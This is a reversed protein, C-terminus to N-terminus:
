LQLVLFGFNYPIQGPHPLVTRYKDLEWVVNARTDESLRHQLSQVDHAALRQDLISNLISQNDLISNLISQNDLVREKKTGGSKGVHRTRTLIGAAM